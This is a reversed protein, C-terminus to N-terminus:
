RHSEESHRFLMWQPLANVGQIFYRLTNSKDQSKQLSEATYQDKKPLTALYSTVKM